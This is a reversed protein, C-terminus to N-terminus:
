LRYSSGNGACNQSKLNARGGFARFLALRLWESGPFPREARCARQEAGASEKQAGRFQAAATFSCRILSEPLIVATRDMETWCFSIPAEPNLRVECLSGRQGSFMFDLNSTQLVQCQKWCWNGLKYQKATQAWKRHSILSYVSILETHFFHRLLWVRTSSKSSCFRVKQTPDTQIVLTFKSFDRPKTSMHEHFYKVRGTLKPWIKVNTWLFGIVYLTNWFITQNGRWWIM